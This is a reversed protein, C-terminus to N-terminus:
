LIVSASRSSYETWNGNKTKNFPQSHLAQQSLENEFIIAISRELSGWAFRGIHLGDAVGSASLTENRSVEINRVFEWWTHNLVTEEVDSFHWM